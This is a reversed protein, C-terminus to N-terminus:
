AVFYLYTFLCACAPWVALNSPRLKLMSEPYMGPLGNAVGGPYLVNDVFYAVEMLAADKTKEKGLVPIAARVYKTWVTLDM